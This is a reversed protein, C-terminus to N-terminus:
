DGDGAIIHTILCGFVFCMDLWFRLRMLLSKVKLWFFDGTPIVSTRFDLDKDIDGRFERDIDM